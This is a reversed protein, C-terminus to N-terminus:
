QFWAENQPLHIDGHMGKEDTVNLWSPFKNQKIQSWPLVVSHCETNLNGETSQFGKNCFCSSIGVLTFVKKIQLTKPRHMEQTPQM